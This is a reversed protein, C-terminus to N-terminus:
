REGKGGGGRGMGKGDGKEQKDEKGGHPSVVSYNGGGWWGKEAWGQASQSCWFCVAGPKGGGGGWGARRTDSQLECGLTLGM